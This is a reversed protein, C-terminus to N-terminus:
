PCSAIGGCGIFTAKDTAQAECLLVTPMTAPTLAYRANVTAECVALGGDPFSAPCFRYGNECAVTVLPVSADGVFVTVTQPAPVANCSHNCSLVALFCGVRFLM